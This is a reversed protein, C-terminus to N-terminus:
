HVRVYQSSGVTIATCWHASSRAQHNAREFVRESV